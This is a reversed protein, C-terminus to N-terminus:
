PLSKGETLHYASIAQLPVMQSCGQRSWACYSYFFLSCVRKKPVAGFWRILARQMDVCVVMITGLWRGKKQKRSQEEVEKRPVICVGWSVDEVRVRGLRPTNVVGASMREADNHRRAAVDDETRILASEEKMLRCLSGDM